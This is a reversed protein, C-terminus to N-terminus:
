AVKALLKLRREFIPNYRLKRVESEAPLWEFFADRMFGHMAAFEAFSATGQPAYAIMGWCYAIYDAERLRHVAAIIFGRECHDVIANNAGRATKQVGVNAAQTAFDPAALDTMFADHWAQRACLFRM